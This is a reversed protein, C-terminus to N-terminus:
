SRAGQWGSFPLRSALRGGQRWFVVVCSCSAARSRCRRDTACALPLGLLHESSVPLTLRAFVHGRLLPQTHMHVQGRAPAHSPQVLCSHVLLPVPLLTGLGGSAQISWLHACWIDTCQLWCEELVASGGFVGLCQALGRWVTRSAKLSAGAKVAILGTGGYEKCLTFNVRAMASPIGAMPVLEVVCYHLELEAGDKLVILLEYPAARLRTHEFRLRGHLRPPRTIDLCTKRVVLQGWGRQLSTILQALGGHTGLPRGQCDLVVQQHPSSRM